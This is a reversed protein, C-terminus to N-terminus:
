HKISISVFAAHRAFLIKHLAHWRDFLSVTTATALGKLLFQHKSQSYSQDSSVNRSINANKPNMDSTKVLQVIQELRAKTQSAVTALSM